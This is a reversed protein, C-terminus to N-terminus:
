QTEDPADGLTGRPIVKPINSVDIEVDRYADDIVTWLREVLHRRPVGLHTFVSEKLVMPVDSFTATRHLSGMTKAYIAIWDDITVGPVTSALVSHAAKSPICSNEHAERDYDNPWTSRRSVSYPYKLRDPERLNRLCGGNEPFGEGISWDWSTVDLYNQCETYNKIIVGFIDSFSEDLAGGDGKYILRSTVSIVGHTIEHGVLDLFRAVSVLQQQKNPDSFIQGYWVKGDYWCANRWERSTPDFPDCCNVICVLENPLM